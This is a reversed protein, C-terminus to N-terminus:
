GGIAIGSVNCLPNGTDSPAMALRLDVHVVFGSPAHMQLSHLTGPFSTQGLLDISFPTGPDLDWNFSGNLDRSDDTDSPHQSWIATQSIASNAEGTYAFVDVLDGGQCQADIRFKGPFNVLTQFGTGTPRRWSIKKVNLGGVTRADVGALTGERIDTGALTDPGVKGSTISDPALKPTTVAGNAIEATTVLHVRGDPQYCDASRHTGESHATAANLTTTSSGPHM